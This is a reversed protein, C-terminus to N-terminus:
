LIFLLFTIIFSLISMIFINNAFNVKADKEVIAYAIFVVAKAIFSLLEAIFISVCVCLLIIFLKEM